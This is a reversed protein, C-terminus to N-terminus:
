PKLWLQSLLMTADTSSCPSFAAVVSPQLGKQSLCRPFPQGEHRLGHFALGFICGAKWSKAAVMTTKSVPIPATAERPDVTLDIDELTEM